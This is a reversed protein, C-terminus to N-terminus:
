AWATVRTVQYEPQFKGALAPDGGCEPVPMRRGDTLHVDYCGRDGQTSAYCLDVRNASREEVFRACSLWDWGHIALIERDAVQGLPSFAACGRLLSAGVEAALSREVIGVLLLPELYAWYNGDPLTIATPAFRHGGTHSTRWVRVGLTGVMERWLRTGLSGCCSDRAGHTCILVDTVGGLVPDPPGESVLRAALDALEGPTGCGERRGYGRFPADGTAYVIVRREETATDAALAQVRLSVEPGLRASVAERVAALQPDDDIESAWPLPHEVLVFVDCRPASGGPDLQV